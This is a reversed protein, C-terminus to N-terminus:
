LSSLQQQSVLRSTAEPLTGLSCHLVTPDTLTPWGFFFVAWLPLFNANFCVNFCDIQNCKFCENFCDIEFGALPTLYYGKNANTQM